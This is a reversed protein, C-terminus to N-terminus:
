DQGPLLHNEKIVAAMGKTQTVDTATVSSGPRLKMLGNIILHEGGELGESVVTYFRTSFGTKVDRREATGNSDIYVFKSLQDEYVAQPPVMLLPIEDTIFVNVYVFTDPMLRQDPNAISARMTITSTLPDVTNDAFDVFGNLREAKLLGRKDGKLEIFADLTSKAAFKTIRQVDSEPPNFYVYIPDIKVITTLLTSDGYGVLNGIDVRRASARGSIPATVVTYDLSLKASEIQADDALIQASLEAYRAQHQELTARPALGEEVLPAYRDVDAKALKQAAIDGEKKAIAANLTAKYQTQEIKFLPQGKKVFNGDKFYIAELRGSVRARVEQESTAKTTGTYQM